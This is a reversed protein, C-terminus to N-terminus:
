WFPTPFKRLNVLVKFFQKKWEVFYQPTVKASTSVKRKVYGMRCLLSKAWDKSMTIHEGNIALLNSDHHMVVGEACAM